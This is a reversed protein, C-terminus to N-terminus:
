DHLPRRVFHAFAVRYLLGAVSNSDASQSHARPRITALESTVESNVPAIEEIIGALPRTSIFEGKIVKGARRPGIM